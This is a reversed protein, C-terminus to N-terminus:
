HLGQFGAIISRDSLLFRPNLKYSGVKAEAWGRINYISPFHIMSKSSRERESVNLYVIKLLPSLSFFVLFNSWSDTTSLGSHMDLVFIKDLLFCNPWIFVLDQASVSCTFDGQLCRELILQHCFTILHFPCVSTIPFLPSTTCVQLSLLPHQYLCFSLLHCLTVSVTIHSAFEGISYCFGSCM